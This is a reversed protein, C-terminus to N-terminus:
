QSIPAMVQRNMNLANRSTNIANTRFTQFKALEAPSLFSGAQAETNAYITDLLALNQDAEAESAINRFNLIPVTQYDAPLGAAALAAVNQQQLLQTLQATKAAKEADTGTLLSGFQAATLTSLLNKTYDQYQALADDGMEAQIKQALATDASSFISDLEGPSSKDHLAQTILDINNMVNDALMDNFKDTQEPTLKLQKAFGAYIVSMGMKQQDHILKKTAPNATLKNLVSQEGAIAKEQRLQGVEGRLKMVENRNTSSKARALEASLAAVRNSADSQDQQLQRLQENLPAQQQQLATIQQHLKSNQTAEFIGVGAAATLAVAVAVKQITTMAITKTASIITSTTVTSAATITAATAAATTIATILGAPASQVANASILAVLGSLGIAVGRKAFCERLREVARNVRKQAAEDSIGLTVAMEKASKREFYRLLLAERDSEELEGLAADLQPAIEEWTADPETTLLDNMAAAEQERARRRVDSRVANAALNQTTRHLWGSLVPQDALQGANRALALFVGQTVDAALQADCVMRLAASYVLEVHRRVLEAFAEESGEASYGALLQQDNLADVRM